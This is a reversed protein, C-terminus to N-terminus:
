WQVFLQRFEETGLPSVHGKGLEGLFHPQWRGRYEPQFPALLADRQPPQIRHQAFQFARQLIHKAFACSQCRVQMVLNSGRILTRVM